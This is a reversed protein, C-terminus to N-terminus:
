DDLPEPFSPIEDPRHKVMDPTEDTPPVILEHGLIAVACSNLADLLERQRFTQAWLTHKAKLADNFHGAYSNEVVQQFRYEDEKWNVFVSIFYVGRSHPDLSELIALLYRNAKTNLRVALRMRTGSTLENDGPDAPFEQVLDAWDNSDPNDPRNWRSLWKLLVTKTGAVDLLPEKQLLEKKVASKVAKSLPM